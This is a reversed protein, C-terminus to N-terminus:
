AGETTTGTVSQGGSPHSGTEVLLVGGIICILGAAMALTFAEGFIFASLIATLAVGSAGWIGYAAGLAMGRKLVAALCAFAGIYGLAVVAYLAPVTESGKLSLTAAVECAIAGILFLWTM